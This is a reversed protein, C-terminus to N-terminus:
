LHPWTLNDAKGTKGKMCAGQRHSRSEKEQSGEAQPYIMHRVRTCGKSQRKIKIM